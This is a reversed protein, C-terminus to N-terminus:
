LADWKYKELSRQDVTVPAGYQLLLRLCPPISETLHTASPISQGVAMIELHLIFLDIECRCLFM